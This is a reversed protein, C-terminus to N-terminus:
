KKYINELNKIFSKFDDNNSISDFPWNSNRLDFVFNNYYYSDIWNLVQKLYKISNNTDWKYGYSRALDYIADNKINIRQYETLTTDLSSKELQKNFNDIAKDYDDKVYYYIGIWKYANSLNPSLSIAKRFNIISKNFDDGWKYFYWIWLSLYNNPYDKNTEIWLLSYEIAKNFGDQKILYINSLNNYVESKIFISGDSGLVKNFYDEASDYNWQSYEYRGRNLLNTPIDFSMDESELYYTNAKEIDWKLEYIYGIQNLLVAKDYDKIDDIRLAENYKSLAEEYNGVIENSYWKYYLILSDDNMTNLISLAKKSYEEEKNYSTAYQLYVKVLNIKNETSKDDINYENEFYAISSILDKDYEDASGSNSKVEDQKQAQNELLNSNEEREDLNFSSKSYFFYWWVILLILIFLLLVKTTNKLEM